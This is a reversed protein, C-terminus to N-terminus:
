AMLMIEGKICREYINRSFQLLSDSEEVMKAVREAEKIAESAMFAKNEADAIMYAASKAAEEIEDFRTKIATTPSQKSHQDDKQKQNSAIRPGSSSGKKIKYSNHVKELKEQTVLRRLKSSLLRRFNPPLEQKSEIFAMISSIDSGTPDKITAIAEFILTNYSSSAKGDAPSKSSDMVTDAPEYLVLANSTPTKSNSSTPAPTSAAASASAPAIPPLAKLKPTRIKDRSGQGSASVSMNRWKDKLDINSRAALYHSFEPDKQINKWKGTGHKAVGARLADEEESTWKQKPAGM